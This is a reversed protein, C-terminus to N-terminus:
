YKIEIFNSGGQLAALASTLGKPLPTPLNDLPFFAMESAKEPEKNTPIGSWQKATFYFEVVDMKQGNYDTAAHHVTALHDLDQPDLHLDAEEFAERALATRPSEFDDAKGAILAYMGQQEDKVLRKILLLKSDKILLLHVGVYPRQPEPPLIM